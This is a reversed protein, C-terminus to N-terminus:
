YLDKFLQIWFDTTLKDFSLDIINDKDEIDEISSIIQSKLLLDDIRLISNQYSLISKIVTSVDVNSQSAVRSNVLQRNIFIFKEDTAIGIFHEYNDPFKIPITYLLSNVKVKDELEDTAGLLLTYDYGSFNTTFDNVRFIKPVNDKFAIIETAGNPKPADTMDGSFVINNEHLWESNWSIHSYDLTTTSLDLDVRNKHNFWHIGVYKWKKSVDFEYASMEPIGNLIKKDSTPLVIQHNTPIYVLKDSFYSIFRLKLEELVITLYKNLSTSSYKNNSNDIYRIKGNRIYVIRVPMLLGILYNYWKVLTYWREQKVQGEFKKISMDLINKIHVPKYLKNSLKRARNVLAKGELSLMHKLALYYFRNRRWTQAMQEIANETQFLWQEFLNSDDQRLYQFTQRNKIKIKNNKSLIIRIVDEVNEPLWNFYEYIKNILDRNKFNKETFTKKSIYGEKVLVDLIIMINDITMQSLGVESDVYELVKDKLEQYTIVPIYVPSVLEQVNIKGYYKNPIYTEMDIELFEAGYTTLYHYIQHLIREYEDIELSQKLTFFTNNLKDINFVKKYTNIVSTEYRSLIADTIIFSKLIIFDNMKEEEVTFAKFLKLTAENLKTNFM